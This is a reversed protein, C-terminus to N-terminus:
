RAYKFLRARPVEVGAASDLGEGGFDAAVYDQPAEIQVSADFASFEVEAKITGVVMASIPGASVPGGDSTLTGDPSVDVTGSATLRVMLDDNVRVWIDVEFVDSASGQESLRDGTLRARIHYVEVGDVQEVGVLEVEEAGEFNAPDFMLLPAVVGEGMENSLIWQGSVVDKVYSDEGIQIFEIDIPPAEPINLQVAGSIRDPAQFDATSTLGIEVEAGFLDTLVEMDLTSRFSPLAGMATISDRLIQSPDADAPPPASVPTDTPVPEPTDVPTDTPAPEPTDVPPTPTNTPEPIPTPEVPAATPTSPVPSPGAVGSDGCAAMFFLAAVPIIAIFSRLYAFSVQPMKPTM